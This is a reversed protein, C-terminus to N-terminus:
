APSAAAGPGYLGAPPVLLTARWGASPVLTPAALLRDGLWVGPDAVAVAHPRGAARWDALQLLGEPGLARIEAGPEAMGAEPLGAEPGELRWRGDWTAGPAAVLGAVAAAERALRLRRGGIVLAGALTCRGGALATALAAEAQAARPRYDAPAVFLLARSFLRLRTEAPAAALAAADLTVDGAEIRAARRALADAAAELVERAAAMRAATAALTATDIGLAALAPLAQRMRVRAYATDDNSPDEVWPIARARLWDRLEDRGVQLLPRWWSLGGARRCGAMASLGDVGSGRALRMLLTEAQDDRTHGLTVDALGRGRAWGALADTRGRRAADPLNGRGDWRWPLTDHPLGLAACARAVGAAEAAAEPRLGHDVTAVALDPGGQARWEALLHLLAVSDGGGSVAVGLAQPVGPAFGTRLASAPDM